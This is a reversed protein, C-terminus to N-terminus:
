SSRFVLRTPGPGIVERASLTLLNGDIAYSVDGQLLGLVAAEVESEPPSCAKKTTALPDITLTKGSTSYSGSGSNCGLQVMIEGDDSLELTSEVGSPVSSATDGSVISDLRWPTGTLSADPAAVEEDTLVIVTGASTITLTSDTASVTPKSTLIDALWTDQRMLAQACGMETMALSGGDVVLVGNRWTADGSMSNCGAHAGITQDGFTIRLESGRVLVYERDDVSVTDGIFTRGELDLRDPQGGKGPDAGGCAGLAAVVSLAGLSAIVLSRTRMGM